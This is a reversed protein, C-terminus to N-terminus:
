MLRVLASQLFRPPLPLSAFIGMKQPNNWHNSLQASTEHPNRERSDQLRYM